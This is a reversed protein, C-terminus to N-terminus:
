AEAKWLGHLNCYEYAAVLEEGQALEFLAEPVMGPKLWKQQYGMTEGLKTEIAVWMIYHAEMMPHTVSGVHVRVARGNRDIVPVHKENAADTTNPVLEDYPLEVASPLVTNNIKYFHM